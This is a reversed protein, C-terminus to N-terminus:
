VTSIHCYIKVAWIFQGPLCPNYLSFMPPLRHQRSVKYLTIIEEMVPWQWLDCRCAGCVSGSAALSFAGKRLSFAGKRWRLSLVHRGSDVPHMESYISKDKHHYNKYKYSPLQWRVFILIVMMFILFNYLRRM